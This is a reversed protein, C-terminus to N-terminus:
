VYRKAKFERASMPRGAVRDTQSGQRVAWLLALDDVVTGRKLRRRRQRLLSRRAGATPLAALCSLLVARQDDSGMDSATRLVDLADDARAGDLARPLLQQQAAPLLSLVNVFTQRLEVPLAAASALCDARGEIPVAAVATILATREQTLLDAAAAAFM